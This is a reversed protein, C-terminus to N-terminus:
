GCVRGVPQYGCISARGTSTSRTEWPVATPRGSTEWCSATEPSSVGGSTYRRPGCRRSIMSWWSTRVAARHLQAGTASGFTSRRTSHQWGSRACPPVGDKVALRILHDISGEALLDPPQRDDTCLCFRRETEATVLPLLTRLNKANTAERLFVTMGLRIKERAEEVATCEHDSWIGAAVYAGLQRGSLGPAHGDIPRGAFAGLKALVDEDGMVTGPFNMVEALGLVAPEDRLPALEEASLTAGATGMTTAPVCSSANVFMTLPVNRADELMFRIGDLGHVNAIEHPDTVVTTVGRPVVARAFERPPVMSSEVHVHADILGPLLLRGALDVTERARFGDGLGVIAEGSLAVDAEIVEASFVDVVRARRLVLDAPVDGRAAALLGFLPDDRMM